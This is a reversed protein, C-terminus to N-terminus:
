SMLRNWEQYFLRHNIESMRFDSAAAGLKEDYDEEGEGIYMRLQLRRSVVGTYTVTYGYFYQSLLQLYAEAAPEHRLLLWITACGVLAGSVSGIATAFAAKDLRAFTKILAEDSITYTALAEPVKPQNAALAAYEQSREVEEATLEEHYEQEVNVSWLDHDAGLINEVALM